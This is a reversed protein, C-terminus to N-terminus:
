AEMSYTTRPALPATEDVLELYARHSWGKKDDATTVQLWDGKVEGGQVINNKYLMGIPSFTIGPGSRMRLASTTVIYKAMSAGKESWNYGFVLFNFFEGM